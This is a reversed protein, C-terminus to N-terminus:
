RAGSHPPDTFNPSPRAAAWTRTIPPQLATQTRPRRPRDIGNRDAAPGDGHATQFLLLLLRHETTNLLRGAQATGQRGAQLRAGSAVADRAAQACWGKWATRSAAVGVCLAGPAAALPAAPTPPPPGALDEADMAASARMGESLAWGGGGGHAACSSPSTCCLMSASNALLSQQHLPTTRGAGACAQRAETNTGDLM